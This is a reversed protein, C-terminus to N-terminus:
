DTELEKDITWPIKCEFEIQVLESINKFAVGVNKKTFGIGFNDTIREFDLTNGNGSRLPVSCDKGEFKGVFHFWGLYYHLDNELKAMHSIELEKKKDIGLEDFINEIESPFVIAKNESYNICHSCGCAESSSTKLKSYADKTLETDVEIEWSRYKIKKM